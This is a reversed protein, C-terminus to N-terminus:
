QPNERYSLEMLEAHRARYEEWSVGLRSGFLGKGNISLGKGLQQLTDAIMTPFQEGLYVRCLKGSRDTSCFHHGLFGSYIYVKAGPAATIFSQFGELESINTHRPPQLPFAYDEFHQLINRHGIVQDIKSDFDSLLEDIVTTRRADLSRFKRNELRKIGHRFVALDSVISRALSFTLTNAEQQTIASFTVLISNAYHFLEVIHRIEVGTLSHFCNEAPSICLTERLREASEASGITKGAM